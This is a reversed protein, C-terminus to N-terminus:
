VLAALVVFYNLHQYVGVENRMEFLKLGTFVDVFGYSSFGFSMCKPIINRIFNMVYLKPHVCNTRLSESVTRIVQAFLAVVFFFFFQSVTEACFLCILGNIWLFDFIFNKNFGCSTGYNQEVFIEM